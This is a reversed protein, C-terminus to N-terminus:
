TGRIYQDYINSSYENMDHYAVDHSAINFNCSSNWWSINNWSFRHIPLRILENSDMDHTDNKGYTQKPEYFIKQQISKKYLHLFQFIEKLLLWTLYNKWSHNRIMRFYWSCAYCDINYITSYNFILVNPIANKKKTRHLNKKNEM